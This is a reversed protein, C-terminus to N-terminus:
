ALHPALAEVAARTDAALGEAVNGEMALFGKWGIRRLTGIVRGFDIAGRGPFLRNNDSLHVSSFLGAHRALAGAMDAEEINMHFTDPLIQAWRGRADAAPLLAATDDLANAVTSQYRNTAEVVLPVGHAAADPVLEPRIDVNWQKGIRAITKGITAPDVAEKARLEAVVQDFFAGFEGPAIAVLLRAPADSANWFAHLHDRTMAAFTGAPAAVTRDENLLQVEGELVYLYEYDQLGDRM